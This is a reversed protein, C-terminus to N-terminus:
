QHGEKHGIDARSAERAYFDLLAQVAKSEHFHDEARTRAAEGLSRCLERDVGLRVMMAAIDVVSKAPHLLGTREEVVADSVGYIRSAIAPLGAAAAEIIVTGFGERHSPLCFVDAASMYHEPTRTFGIRHIRQGTACAAEAISADLDAESPGVILLHADPLQAVAQRFAQLLEPIGKENTVRGLFLYVVADEAIGLENRIRHRVDNQRRFRSTNVGCISGDALVEIRDRAVVHQNVLYELQSPSDTLLRSASAALLRDMNRLVQRMIGTRTAWVQGTFSHFRMPVGALRAALMGLLGSKPMITHVATFRERLFFARLWLLCALDKNLSIGRQIPCTVFTVHENLLDAVEDRTGDCVLVINYIASLARVHPGMFVRLPTAITSVICLKPRTM